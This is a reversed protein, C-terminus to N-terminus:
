RWKLICDIRTPKIASYGAVDLLRQTAPQATSLLYMLEICIHLKNLNVLQSRSVGDCFCEESILFDIRTRYACYILFEENKLFRIVLSCILFMHSSMM